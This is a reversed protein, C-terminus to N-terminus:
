EKELIKEYEKIIRGAVSEADLGKDILKERGKTRNKFNIASMIKQAVDVPDFSCIYCGKVGEFLEGADGTNTSVVPINCAMAEKIVNASGEWKSTSLLVDASNLYLAVSKNEVNNVVQLKIDSMGILGVAIEALRFNKEERAPDAMFLILRTDANIGLVSRCDDREAPRYRDMDVGNPIIVAERFALLEKMSSSKTIVRAWLTRYFFREAIRLLRSKFVDSGMLSVILRKGPKKGMVLLSVAAVIGSLAYHAHFLDFKNDRLYRTLKFINGFYSIWGKGTVPFFEIQLGAKVLSSAQNNVVTSIGTSSNGSCIFLVRM